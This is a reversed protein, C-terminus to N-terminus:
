SQGLGFIGSLLLQPTASSRPAAVVIRSVTAPARPAPQPSVVEVRIRGITLKPVAAIPVVPPQAAAPMVVPAAVVPPAPAVVREIREVRPEIMPARM